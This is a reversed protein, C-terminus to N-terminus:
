HVFAVVFRAGVIIERRFNDVVMQSFDEVESATFIHTGHDRQLDTHTMVLCVVLFGLMSAPM